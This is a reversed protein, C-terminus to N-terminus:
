PPGSAPVRTGFVDLPGSSMGALAGQYPCSSVACGRAAPAPTPTWPRPPGRPGREGPAGPDQPSASARLLSPWKSQPVSLAARPLPAGELLCLSTLRFLGAPLLRPQGRAVPAMQTRHRQFGQDQRQHGRQTSKERRRPSCLKQGGPREAARVRPWALAWHGPGQIM